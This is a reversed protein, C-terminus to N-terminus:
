RSPLRGTSTPIATGSQVVYFDTQTDHIEAPGSAERHIMLVYHAGFDGLDERAFNEDNIKPALKKAYGKLEANSWVKAEDAAVCLPVISLALAAIFLKKM